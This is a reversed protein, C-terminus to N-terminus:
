ADSQITLKVSTVAQLLRARKLIQAQAFVCIEGLRVNYASM